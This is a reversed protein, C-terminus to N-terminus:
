LPPSAHSSKIKVQIITCGLRSFCELVSPSTDKALTVKIDKAVDKLSELLPDKPLEKPLDPIIQQQKYLGRRSRTQNKNIIRAKDNEKRQMEEIEREEEDERYTQGPSIFNLYPPCNPFLSPRLRQSLNNLIEHGHTRNM